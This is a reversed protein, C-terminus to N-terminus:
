RYELLTIIQWGRETRVPARGSSFSKAQLYQPPIVIQGSVSIYGWFEGIKVAALHQGFSLADDFEFGIVVAGDLDIFGWKGNRMVAAYGETSFPRADEFIHGTVEGNVILHVGDEARMFVAGRAYSRGLEDAVVGEYIPPVIWNNGIDIVGWGTETQAAVHGDSYTGIQTFELTGIILDGTARRWAGDILIAIRNDSLNGFATADGRHLAIRNNNRDVAFVEGGTYVIARDRSFTSIAEYECPIIITGNVGAIGWLGDRKVQMTSENIEAIYEFQTRLTEFAYRNNEYMYLLQDCRTKEIGDRLVRLAETVRSINFYHNAAEAFINSQVNRRGMQEELLNIYRMSIGRNGMLALYAAKLNNEADLTYAGNYNAAQELLPVARVYIGDNMLMVAQGILRLQRESISERNITMIWSTTLLLVCGVVIIIRTIKKM